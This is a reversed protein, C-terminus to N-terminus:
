WRDVPRDLVAGLLILQRVTAPQRLLRVLEQAQTAPAAAPQPAATALDGRLHALEHSFAESV